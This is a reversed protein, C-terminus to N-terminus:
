KMIQKHVSKVTAVDAETIIRGPPDDRIRNQPSTTYRILPSHRCQTMFDNFGYKVLNDSLWTASPKSLRKPLHKVFRNKPYKLTGNRM